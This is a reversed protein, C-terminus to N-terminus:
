RDGEVRHVIKITASFRGLNPPTSNDVARVRYRYPRGDIVRRDVFGTVAVPTPTMKVWRGWRIPAEGTVPATPTAYRGAQRYVLYGAVDPEPNKTWRLEIGDKGRSLAALNMVPGPGVLKRPAVAGASSVPGILLRGQWLRVARVSYKYTEGLAVRSDVLTRDTIPRPTLRMVNGRRDARFVLYGPVGRIRRGDLRREVAPWRVRVVGRGLGTVTGRGPAKPYQGYYVQADPTLFRMRDVWKMARTRVTRVLYVYRYGPVLGGLEVSMRSGPRRRGTLPIFRRRTYTVPCKRCDDETVKIATSLLWFGAHRRKIPRGERDHRGTHYPQPVSWWLKVGGPILDFSVPAVPMPKVVVPPRPDTKLGCGTVLACVVVLSAIRGAM